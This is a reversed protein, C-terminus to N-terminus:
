HKQKKIAYFLLIKLGVARRRFSPAVCFTQWEEMKRGTGAAMADQVTTHVKGELPIQSHMRAAVAHPSFSQIPLSKRKRIAM